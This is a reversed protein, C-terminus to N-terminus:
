AELMIDTFVLDIKEDARLYAVAGEGSSAELILWGDGRLAHAMSYRMLPEDEVILVVLGPYM